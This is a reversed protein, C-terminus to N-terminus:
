NIYKLEPFKEILKKAIPRYVWNKIWHKDGFKANDLERIHRLRGSDDTNTYIFHYGGSFKVEEIIEGTTENIIKLKKAM